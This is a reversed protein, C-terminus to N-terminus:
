RKGEQRRNAAYHKPCWGRVKADSWCGQVDCTTPKEALPPLTGAKKHEYYHTRCFGRGVAGKDCDLETCKKGFEGRARAANYHKSCYGRVVSARDCYGVMCDEHYKAM